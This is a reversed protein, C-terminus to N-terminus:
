CNVPRVIEDHSIADAIAADAVPVEHFIPGFHVVDQVAVKCDLCHVALFQRLLHQREILVVSGTEPPGVAEVRERPIDRTFVVAIAIAKFRGFRTSEFHRQRDLVRVALRLRGVNARQREHPEFVVLRM